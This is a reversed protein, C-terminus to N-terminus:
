AGVGGNRVWDRGRFLRRASFPDDRVRFGPPADHFVQKEGNTPRVRVIRGGLGVQQLSITTLRGPGHDAPRGFVKEASRDLGDLLRRANTSRVSPLQGHFLVILDVRIAHRFEFPFM